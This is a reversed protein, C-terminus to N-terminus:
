VKSESIKKSDELSRRYIDLLIGERLGYDSVIVEKFGFTEMLKLLIFTGPVIIDLRAPEFPHYKARQKRTIASIDNFINRIKKIPIKSNHIKNRNFRTLHLTIAALTTVTGATGIFVTNKSFLKKFPKTISIIKRFIEKEMQALDKKKPPDNIMYKDALHVIGLNISRSLLPRKQRTLILEMSGGGIDAMLVTEPLNIGTMMGSATKKAEERGSIIKIELGSAEKVKKLFEPSNKADRLASTALATTKYVRNCSIINGFKKLASLGRAMAKKNILGSESVGEGLRTIIRDSRIEKIKYSNRKASHQVEAILLRFTNTGIDIAALPKNKM